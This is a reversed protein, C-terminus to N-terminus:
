LHAECQSAEGGAVGDRHPPPCHSPQGAPRPPGAAIITKKVARRVFVSELRQRKAPAQDSTEEEESGSVIAAMITAAAERYLEPVAHIPDAESWIPRGNSKYIWCNIMRTTLAPGSISFKRGSM